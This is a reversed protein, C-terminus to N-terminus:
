LLWFELSGLRFVAYNGRYERCSFGLEIRICFHDKWKQNGERRGLGLREEAGGVVGKQPQARPAAGMLRASDGDGDDDLPLSSKAARRAESSSSAEPASEAKGLSGEEAKGAVSSSPSSSSGSSSSTSAM